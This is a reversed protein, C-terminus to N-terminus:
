VGQAHRDAVFAMKGFQFIDLSASWQAVRFKNLSRAFDQLAFTGPGTPSVNGGTPM